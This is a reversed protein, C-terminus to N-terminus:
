TKSKQENQIPYNNLFASLAHINKIQQLVEHLSHDHSKTERPGARDRNPLLHWPSRDDDGDDNKPRVFALLAFPVRRTKKNVCERGVGRQVRFFVERDSVHMLVTRNFGWV